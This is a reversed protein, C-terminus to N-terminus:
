RANRSRRGAATPASAPTALRSPGQGRGLPQASAPEGQRTLSKRLPRRKPELLPYAYFPAIRKRRRSQSIRCLKSGNRTLGFFVWRDLQELEQLSPVAAEDDAAAQAKSSNKRSLKLRGFRVGLDMSLEVLAAELATLGDVKECFISLAWPPMDDWRAPNLLHRIAREVRYGKPARIRVLLRLSVRWSRHETPSSPERTVVVVGAAYTSGHSVLKPLHRKAWRRARQICDATLEDGDYIWEPHRVTLVFVHRGRSLASNFYRGVQKLTSSRVDACHTRGRKATVAKGASDTKRPVRALKGEKTM